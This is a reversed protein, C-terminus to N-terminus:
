LGMLYEYLPIIWFMIAILIIIYDLDSKINKTEEM